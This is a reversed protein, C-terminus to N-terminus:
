HDTLIHKLTDVKSTEGKGKGKGKGKFNFMYNSFFFDMPPELFTFSFNALKIICM